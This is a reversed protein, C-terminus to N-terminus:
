LTNVKLKGSEQLCHFNTVEVGYCLAFTTTWSPYDQRGQTLIGSIKVQNEFGVQLYHPQSSSGAMWAGINIGPKAAQKLRGYRPNSEPSAKSSSSIQSGKIDGNEMGM